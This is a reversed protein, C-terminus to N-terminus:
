ENNGFNNEGEVYSQCGEKFSQSNGGCDNFDTIGKDNAWKYGAEHGSCDSTCDYGYFTKQSPLSNSDERGWLIGHSMPILIFVVVFVVMLIIVVPHEKKQQVQKNNEM